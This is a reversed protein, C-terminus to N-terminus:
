VYTRNSSINFNKAEANDYRSAIQDMIKTYNDIVEIFAEVQGMDRQFAQHFSEHAEGEWMSNLAMENSALTEKEQRLRGNLSILQECQNRLDNSNVQYFSM